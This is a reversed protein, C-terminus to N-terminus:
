RDPEGFVCAPFRESPSAALSASAHSIILSHACRGATQYPQEDAGCVDAGKRHFTGVSHKFGARSQSVATVKEDRDDKRRAHWVSVQGDM